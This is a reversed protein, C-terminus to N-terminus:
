FIVNQGDSDEDPTGTICGEQQSTNEGDLKPKREIWPNIGGADPVVKLKSNKTGDASVWSDMDLHGQVTIYTGKTFYKFMTEAYNGFITFDVYVTKDVYEERDKKKSSRNVAFSVRVLSLNEKTKELVADKTVRGGLLVANLDTMKIGGHCNNKEAKGLQQRFM